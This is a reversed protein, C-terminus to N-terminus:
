FGSSSKWPGYNDSWMQFMLLGWLVSSNDRRRSYHEQKLAEITEPQFLGQRAIRVPSLVDDVLGRLEQRLWRAVPLSFGAKRRYLVDKPVDREFARKLLYKKEWGRIKFHGPVSAMFEVLPHDLYPVRVELSVAMSVRDAVTLLDNIMSTQLDVCLVRNLLDAETHESAVERMWALASDLEVKQRLEPSYLDRRRARDIPSAFAFFREVWPLASSRVFRKAHDVRRVGKSSEPILDAVRRVVGERLIRPVKRYWEAVLVGLHRQYGGALEDGGLGSLAVTLRQRAM